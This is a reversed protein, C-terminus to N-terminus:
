RCRGVHNADHIKVWFSGNGLESNVSVSYKSRSSASWDGFAASEGRLEGSRKIVM